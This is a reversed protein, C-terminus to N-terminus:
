KIETIKFSKGRITVLSNLNKGILEDYIDPFKKNFEDSTKYFRQNNGELSVVTILNNAQVKEVKSFPKTDVPVKLPPSIKKDADDSKIKQANDSVKAGAPTEQFKKNVYEIMIAAIEEETLCDLVIAGGRKNLESMAPRIQDSTLTTNQEKFHRLFKMFGNFLIKNGVFARTMISFIKTYFDKSGLVNLDDNSFVHRAWWYKSLTNMVLKNRAGGNFFFRNKIERINKEADTNSFNSIKDYSWRRRVYDYFVGHCLGAWLREDAAQRPTLFHFNKYLIKCNRFDIEGIDLGEDLPTLEFDSVERFKVFPNEGCIEVVWSNDKETFYKDFTQTLSNKLTDLANDKLFCLEM